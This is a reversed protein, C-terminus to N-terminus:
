WVIGNCLHMGPFNSFYTFVGIKPAWTRKFYEIFAKEAAFKKYFAQLHEEALAKLQTDSFNSPVEVNLRMLKDLADLVAGRTERSKVKEKLNKIWAQKVHWACLFVPVGDM